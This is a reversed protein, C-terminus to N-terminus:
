EVSIIQYTKSFVVGSKPNSLFSTNNYFYFWTLSKNKRDAFTQFYVPQQKTEAKIPKGSADTIGTQGTPQAPKLLLSIEEINSKLLRCYKKKGSAEVQAKIEINPKLKIDIAQGARYNQIKLTLTDTTPTTTGTNSSKVKTILEGIKKSLDSEVPAGPAPAPTEGAPKRLEQAVDAEYLFENYKLM